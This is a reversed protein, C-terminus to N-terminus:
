RPRDGAGVGENRAGANGGEVVGAVVVERGNRRAPLM